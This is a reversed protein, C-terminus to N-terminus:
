LQLFDIQPFIGGRRRLMQLAAFREAHIRQIEALPQLPYENRFHAIQKRVLGGQRWCAAYMYQRLLRQLVHVLVHARKDSFYALEIVQQGAFVGSLFMLRHRM